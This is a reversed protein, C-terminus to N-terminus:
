LYALVFTDTVREVVEMEEEARNLSIDQILEHMYSPLSQSIAFVMVKSHRM